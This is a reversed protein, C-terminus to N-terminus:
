RFANILIVYRHEQSTIILDGEKSIKNSQYEVLRRKVDDPIWDSSAVNFRIEAKTNVKNVNQGGPGSSRAYSFDIKDLPVHM